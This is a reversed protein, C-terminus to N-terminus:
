RRRGHLRCRGSRRPHGRRRWVLRQWLGLDYYAVRDYSSGYTQGAPLGLLLIVSLLYILRKGM